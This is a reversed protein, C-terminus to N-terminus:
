LLDEMGKARFVLLAVALNKTAHYLEGNVMVPTTLTSDGWAYSLANYIPNELLSISLYACAVQSSEDETPLGRLLRIERKEASLASYM